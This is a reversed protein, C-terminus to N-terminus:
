DAKPLCDPKRCRRLHDKDIYVVEVQEASPGLSDANKVLQREDFMVTCKYHCHVLECPGALPYVKCPDVKDGIKEILIRINNCQAEYLAPSGTRSLRVKSWVEEESPPDMCCGPANGNPDPDLILVKSDEPTGWCIEIKPQPEVISEGAARKVDSDVSPAPVPAFAMPRDTREWRLGVVLLGSALIISGSLWKAAKVIDGQM